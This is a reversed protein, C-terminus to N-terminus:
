EIGTLQEKSAMEVDKILDITKSINENLATYGSIMEEAIKKGGNAKSTANQVLAKIENAADASRSALNRVEQAVVAFGKGAEGATAAEVAANLSLINTQFAIQDIVTIAENIANVEQDIHNMAQTTENALSEGKSASETVSSALKSMKVVNETNHSINSTIEELAAATEELAAAAENSNINLTDVNKLLINSSRDLTLGNAKNEILMKTIADRLYNINKVLADFVGEKEIDEIKLEKRYDLNVYNELTSNIIIFREKLQDLAINITDKLQMLNPNTSNAEIHQSLWGKQVRTMVAQTDSIFINDELIRKEIITINEDIEKAIVGFEDTSDLEIKKASTTKRNLFDFFSDIGRQLKNLSTTISSIILYSFVAILVFSILSLIRLLILTNDSADNYLNVYIIDEKNSTYKWEQLNEKLPRWVTSVHQQIEKEELTGQKAKEILKTIDEKYVTFLTNINYTEVGNSFDKVEPSDLKNIQQLMTTFTSELTKHMKTDSPNIYSSSLASNIQIGNTFVDNVTERIDVLRQLNKFKEKQSSLKIDIYINIGISTVIFIVVLSVLKNKISLNQFM